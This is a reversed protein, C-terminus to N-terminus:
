FDLAETLKNMDRMVAGEWYVINAEINAFMLDLFQQAAGEPAAVGGINVRDFDPKKNGGLSVDITFGTYSVKRKPFQKELKALQEKYKILNNASDM